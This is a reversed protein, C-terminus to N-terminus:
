IFCKSANTLNERIFFFISDFPDFIRIVFCSCYYIWIRFIAIFIERRFSSNMKVPVKSFNLKFPDLISSRWRKREGTWTTSLEIERREWGTARYKSFWLVAERTFFFFPFFFVFCAILPCRLNRAMGKLSDVGQERSPRWEEDGADNFASLPRSIPSIVGSFWGRNWAWPGVAWKYERENRETLHTASKGGCSRDTFCLHLLLVFFPHQLCHIVRSHFVDKRGIHWDDSAEEVYIDFTVKWDKCM